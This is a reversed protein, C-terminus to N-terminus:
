AGRRTITEELRAVPIGFKRVVMVNEAVQGGPQLYLWQDAHTGGKMAFSLHLRNGTADGAVPGTADTLTGAYRGPGVAHLHWTRRTPPKDGRRVEQDLTISGDDAVSGIGEVLTQQQGSFVIHLTGRGETRGAFFAVPDFTPAAAQEAPLHGSAVCGAVAIAVLPALARMM